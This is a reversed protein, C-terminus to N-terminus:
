DASLTGQYTGDFLQVTQQSKVLGEIISFAAKLNQFAIGTISGGAIAINGRAHVPPVKSAPPDAPPTQGPSPAPASASQQDFALHKADLDIHLM